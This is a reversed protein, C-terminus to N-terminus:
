CTRFTVQTGTAHRNHPSEGEKYATLTRGGTTTSPWGAKTKWTKGEKDVVVRGGGGGELMM